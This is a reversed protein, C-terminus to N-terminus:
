PTDITKPYPRPARCGPPLRNACGSPDFLYVHNGPHRLPRFAGSAVVRDVWAAPDEGVRRPPAGAVELKRAAGEWGREGNRIKSLGRESAVRGRADLLLLRGRGRGVYRAGKSAYIGGVHGPMVTVGELDTRPVPDSYSVVVGVEPLESRLAAFARRLFFTEGNYPVDDLLVFRGLEVGRAAPLGSYAPIVAAQMPVSFVAVGVLEPRLWNRRRYLGVRLRAAPLSGAYHHQVVFDRATTDDPIVEVGFQGPDFDAARARYYDRGLRWRQTTDNM